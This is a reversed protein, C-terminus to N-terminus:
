RGLPFCTLSGPASWVIEMWGVSANDYGNGATNNGIAALGQCELFRSTGWRAMRSRLRGFFGPRSTNSCTREVIRQCKTLGMGTGPYAAASHLDVARSQRGFSWATAPWRRLWHMPESAENILEIGAADRMSTCALQHSSTLALTARAGFSM